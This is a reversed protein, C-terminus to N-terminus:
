APFGYLATPNEVLIKKQLTASPAWNALLDLLEGTDPMTGFFYVHPWDTGWICREATGRILEKALQQIDTFPYGAKSCRYGCLKVWCRGGDLLSRLARISPSNLEQDAMIQGMHDVVVPTPLENLLQVLDPLQEGHLWVQIHWGLPAIRKAVNKLVDPSPGGATVLNFRVGRVGAADMERLETDTVQEDIVVVGRCRSKGIQKLADLTCSNDLGYVSPQVIVMREIGLRNCLLLYKEVTAEPPTYDRESVFAYRDRRGIIHCHCDCSNAPAKLSPRKIFERPAQCNDSM